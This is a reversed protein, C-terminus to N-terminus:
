EALIVDYFYNQCYLLIVLIAATNPFYDKDSDLISDSRAILSGNQFRM